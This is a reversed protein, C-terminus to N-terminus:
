SESSILQPCGWGDSRGGHASALEDLERKIEHIRELTPILHILISTQWARQEQWHRHDTRSHGVNRVAELYGVASEEEAFWHNFAVDRSKSLDDGNERLRKLVEATEDQPSDPVLVRKIWDLRNKM